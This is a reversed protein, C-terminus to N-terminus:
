SRKFMQIKKMKGKKRQKNFQKNNTNTNKMIFKRYKVLVIETPVDSENIKFPHEFSM